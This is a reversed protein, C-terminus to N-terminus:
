EKSLLSDTITLSRYRNPKFLSDTTIGAQKRLLEFNLKKGELMYNIPMVTYTLMGNSSDWEMACIHDSDVRAVDFLISQKEILNEWLLEEIATQEINIVRIENHRLKQYKKKPKVIM